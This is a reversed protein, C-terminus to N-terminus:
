EGLVKAIVAEKCKWSATLRQNEAPLAHCNDYGCGAKWYLQWDTPAPIQPIAGPLTSIKRPTIMFMMLVKLESHRLKTVSM